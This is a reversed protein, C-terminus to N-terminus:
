SERSSESPSENMYHVYFKPDSARGHLDSAQM